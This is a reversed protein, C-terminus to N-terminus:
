VGMVGWLRLLGSSELYRVLLAKHPWIAFTMYSPTLDRPKAFAVPVVDPQSSVRAM